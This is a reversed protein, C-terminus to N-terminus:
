YKGDKGRGFSEGIVYPAIPDTSHIKSSEGYAAADRITDKLRNFSLKSVWNEDLLKATQIGKVLPEVELGSKSVLISDIGNSILDDIHDKDLKTGPMLEMIQVALKRGVANRTPVEETDKKLSPFIKGVEVHQGPLFGTEGPNKIEVYKMLNRAILDFHRNDLGGGYIDRLQDSM